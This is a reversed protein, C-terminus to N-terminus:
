AVTDVGGSTIFSTHGYAINSETRMEDEHPETLPPGTDVPGQFVPTATVPGYCVNRQLEIEEKEILFPHKVILLAANAPIIFNLALIRLGCLM